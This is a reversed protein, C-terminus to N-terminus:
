PWSYGPFYDQRIHTEPIGIRYLLQELTQVMPLPGSIYFFYDLFNSNITQISHKTIRDPEVFYDISFNPHKRMLAELEKTYLFESTRNTYLLKAQIPLNQQDLDLLISRFPTIGIGGAIFIYKQTPDDIVFNGRPGDVSLNRGYPLRLLTKKFTSSNTAHIRTTLMIHKEFPSSAITFYRKTGRTDPTLHPLTYILYQGAKWACQKSPRFVFSYANDKEKTKRLFTLQM